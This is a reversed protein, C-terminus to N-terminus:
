NGGAEECRLKAIHAQNDCVHIIGIVIMIICSYTDFVVFNNYIVGAEQLEQLMSLM